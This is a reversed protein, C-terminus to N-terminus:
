RQVDYHLDRTKIMSAIIDNGASMSYSMCMRYLSRLCAKVMTKVGNKFYLAYMYRHQYRNYFLFRSKFFMCAYFICIIFIIGYELYRSILYTCYEQQTYLVICVFINVLEKLKYICYLIVFIRLGNLIKWLTPVKM